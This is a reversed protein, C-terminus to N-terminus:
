QGVSTLIATVSGVAVGTMVKVPLRREDDTLWITVGRKGEFVGEAFVQPQIVLTGVRGLVTKLTERGLVRVEVRRPERGDLVTVSHPKGPELPLYRVFYFSGYIDYVGSPVAVEAQEGSLRDRYTARGREQDFFIERDRRRGGDLMLMRYRRTAGPFPAGAADLVSEVRDDVPYFLSLWANSRATATIRRRDGEGTIEQTATGVPIGNWSLDYVLREPVRGAFLPCPYLTLILMFLTTVPVVRLAAFPSRPIPFSTQADGTPM